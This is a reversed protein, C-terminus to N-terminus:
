FQIHINFYLLHFYKPPNQLIKIDDVISLVANPRISLIRPSIYSGNMFYSVFLNSGSNVRNGSVGVLM